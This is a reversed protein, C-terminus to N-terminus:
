KKATTVIMSQAKNNLIQSNKKVDLSLGEMYKLFDSKSLAKDSSIYKIYSRSLSKIDESNQDTIGRIEDLQGRMTFQNILLVSDTKLQSIQTERITKVTKILEENNDKWKDYMVFGGWIVGIVSAILFYQEAYIKLGKLFTIIIERMRKIRNKEKTVM